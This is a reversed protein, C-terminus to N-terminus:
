PAFPVGGPPVAPPLPTLGVGPAPSAAIAEQQALERPLPFPPSNPIYEPPHNELYHGSPLTMGQFWTQCGSLAILALGLVAGRGAPRFRSTKM